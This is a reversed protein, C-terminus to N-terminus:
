AKEDLPPQPANWGGPKFQQEYPAFPIEIGAARFRKFIALHIDSKVALSNDVNAVVCRLEFQLSNDGFSMFFARPPPAQVVQPHETAIALLIDRVEEPDSRYAVGVKVIIRGMTNSHTWNKVMGTILESNPIIVSAREFTELETSRVRIRRVWGEEGKVVISDGVRIPREALLILGSVFNSVIAQLGFGIGVSLAGAVFAIKQLDIGLGALAMSIAIIVGIYGFITGISLQLSPEIATRPLLDRQLWRQATKTVILGVVLVAIATVIAVFSINIEGIKFGLPISQVSDILDATSVEWPGVILMLALLILLARIGASLMVGVVGVNRPNVGLMGAIKRSHPTDAALTDTFLADTAVLLLYLAGLVAAGVIARLAIFAGLASYGAILSMISAVAIIWIALRLGPTKVLVQDEGEQARLRSLLHLFLFSISIALIANTAVTLILPGYLARHTLQAFIIIGFARTAWVLHDHFLKATPDDMDILRREPADPAFLGRAVGRGFTAAFVAPILGKAIEGVRYPLLGFAELVLVAVIVAILTRGFLWAFVLLGRRARALRTGGQPNADFHPVWWRTIAFLGGLVALIVVLAPAIRSIGASVVTERWSDLAYGLSRLEEPVANAAEVWFYPDLVSASRQFIMRAYIARRRESIRDNLQDTKVSLLRAQKLAGDVIGFNQTLQEREQTVAAEEPPADKAPAVGLQKLRADLEALRPELEEIRSRLRERISVIKARYESLRDTEAQMQGASHVTAAEASLAAEIQDLESKAQELAAVAAPTEQAHSAPVSGLMALAFFFLAFLQTTLANRNPM